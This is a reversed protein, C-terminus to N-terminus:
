HHGGHEDVTDALFVGGEIHTELEDEFAQFVKVDQDTLAFQRLSYWATERVIWDEKPNSVTLVLANKAHDPKVKSMGLAFAAGARVDPSDDKLNEIVPIIDSEETAWDAMAISSRRRTEPDSSESLELLSESVQTKNEEYTITPTLAYLATNIIDPDSENELTELILERSEADDSNLRDLLELGAIRQAKNNDSTILIRAAEEVRADRNIGLVSSLVEGVPTGASTAFEQLVYDMAIPDEHIVVGLRGQMFDMIDGEFLSPDDLMVQISSVLELAEKNEFEKPIESAIGPEYEPSGKKLDNTQQIRSKIKDIKENKSVSLESILKDVKAKEYVLQQNLSAITKEWTETNSDPSQIQISNPKFSYGCVVGIVLAIVPASYNNKM